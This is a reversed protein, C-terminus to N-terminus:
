KQTQKTSPNKDPNREKNAEDEFGFEFRRHMAYTAATSSGVVGSFRMSVGASTSGSRRGSTLAEKKRTVLRMSPSMIITRNSSKIAVILIQHISSARLLEWGCPVLGM